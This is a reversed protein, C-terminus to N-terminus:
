SGQGPPVPSTGRALRIETIQLAVGGTSIAMLAILGGNPSWSGTYVMFTAVIADIALSLAIALTWEVPGDRFHLLPVYAMGPCVLLFWFSMLHRVPPLFEGFVLLGISVNSIIIIAPWAWPSRNV